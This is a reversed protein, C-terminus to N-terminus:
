TNHRNTIFLSVKRYILSSVAVRIRMGIRSVYFNTHHIAFVQLVALGTLIGSYISMERINGENSKDTFQKILQALAVPILMRFYFYILCFILNNEIILDPLHTISCLPNILNAFVRLCLLHVM